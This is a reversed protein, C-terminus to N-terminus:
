FKPELSFYWAGRNASFAARANPAPAYKHFLRLCALESGFAYFVGGIQEVTIPEDKVYERWDRELRSMQTQTAEMHKTHVFSHPSDIGKRFFFAYKISSTIAFVPLGGFPLVSRMYMFILAPTNLRISANLDFNPIDRVAAM